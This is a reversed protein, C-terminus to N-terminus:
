ELQLYLTFSCLTLTLLLASSCCMYFLVLMSKRMQWTNVIGNNCAIGIRFFRGQVGEAAVFIDNWECVDKESLFSLQYDWNEGGLMFYMLAVVYRSVFRAGEPSDISDPIPLYLQDTDALWLVAFEHPSGAETMEDFGSVGNAYLWQRVLTDRPDRPAPAPTAGTSGSSAADIENGRKAVGVSLGIVTVILVAILSIIAVEGCRGIRRNSRPSTPKASHQSAVRIDEVSPLQDHINSEEDGENTTGNFTM